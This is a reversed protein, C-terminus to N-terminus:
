LNPEYGMVGINIKAAAGSDNTVRVLYNTSTKLVFENGFGFAGGTAQNKTGAPILGTGNVQTGTATITPGSTVTGVFTKASTRNHNSMTVATGAASFTAGEYIRVTADGSSTVEFQAHFPQVGVQILMDLNAGNAVSANYASGSFFRGAHTQAHVYEISEVYAPNTASVPNTGDIGVQTVIVAETTPDFRFNQAGYINAM